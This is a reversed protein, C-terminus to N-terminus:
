TKKGSTIGTLFILYDYTLNELSVYKHINAAICTPMRLRSRLGTKCNSRVVYKLTKDGWDPRAIFCMEITADRISPYTTTIWM